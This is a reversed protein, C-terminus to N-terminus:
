DLVGVYHVIDGLQNRVTGDKHLFYQVGHFGDKLFLKGRLEIHRCCRECIVKGGCRYGVRETFNKGIFIGCAFCKKSKIEAKM